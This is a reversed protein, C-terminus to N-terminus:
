VLLGSQVGPGSSCSSRGVATPWRRSRCRRTGPTLVIGVKAWVAPRRSGCRATPCSASRRGRGAARSRPAACWRCRDPRSRNSARSPAGCSRISQHYWLMSLTVPAPTASTVFWSSNSSSTPCWATRTRQVVQGADSSSRGNQQDGAEGMRVIGYTVRWCYQSRYSPTSMGIGATAASSTADVIRVRGPEAARHRHVRGGIVSSWTRLARRAYRPLTDYEVVPGPPQTPVTTASPRRRRCRRRAGPRDRRCAPHAPARTCSSSRRPSPGPEAPRGRASGTRAAVPPRVPTARRDAASSRELEGADVTSASRAARRVNATAARHPHRRSSGCRATIALVHGLSRDGRDHHDAAAVELEHVARGVGVLQEVEGDIRVLQALRATSGAHASWRRRTGRRPRWCTPGRRGAGALHEGVLARRRNM